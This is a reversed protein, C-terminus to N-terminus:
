GLNCCLGDFDSYSTNDLIMLLAELVRKASELEDIYEDDEQITEYNAYYKESVTDYLASVVKKMDKTDQLKTIVNNLCEVTEKHIREREEKIRNFGRIKADIFSIVEKIDDVSIDTYKEDEDDNWVIDLRDVVCQYVQSCRSFLMLRLPTDSEKKKLYFNIYSSMDYINNHRLYLM